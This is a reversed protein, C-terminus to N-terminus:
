FFLLLIIIYNLIFRIKKMHSLYSAIELYLSFFELINFLLKYM